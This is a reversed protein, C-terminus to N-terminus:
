GGQGLCSKGRYSFDVVAFNEAVITYLFPYSGPYKIGAKMLLRTVWLCCSLQPWAYNQDTVVAPSWPTTCLVSDPGWCCWFQPKTCWTCQVCSIQLLLNSSLNQVTWPSFHVVLKDWNSFHTLTALCVGRIM